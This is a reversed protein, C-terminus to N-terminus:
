FPSAEAMLNPEARTAPPVQFATMTEGSDVACLSQDGARLHRTDRDMAELRRSLDRYAEDYELQVISPFLVGVQILRNTGLVLAYAVCLIVLIKWRISM